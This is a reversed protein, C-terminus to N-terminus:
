CQDAEPGEYTGRSPWRLNHERLQIAEREVSSMRSKLGYACEDPERDPRFITSCITSSKKLPFSLRPPPLTIIMPLGLSGYTQLESAVSSRLKVSLATERELAAMLM